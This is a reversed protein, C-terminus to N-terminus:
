IYGLKLDSDQCINYYKFPLLQLSWLNKVFKLINEWNVIKSGAMLIASHNSKDTGKYHAPFM